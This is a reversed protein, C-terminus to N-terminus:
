YDFENKDVLIKRMLREGPYPKRIEILNLVTYGHKRLFAIMRGNNPHIYNYVTSEGFASAIAEAKALLASAVGSGRYESRVYISELWVTPADIRCVAYGIYKDGEVAAFCPFGAEIYEILECLGADADMQATIGKYGKLEVRFAAILPAAAPANSKDINIIDM